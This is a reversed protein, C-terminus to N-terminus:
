RIISPDYKDTSKLVWCLPAAATSDYEYREGNQWLYAARVAESIPVSGQQWGSLSLIAESMVISWDSTDQKIQDSYACFSCFLFVLVIRAMACCYRMNKVEKVHIQSISNSNSQFLQFRKMLNGKMLAGHIKPSVMSM